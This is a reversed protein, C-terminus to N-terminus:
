DIAPRAKQSRRQMADALKARDDPPLTAAYGVARREVAARVVMDADRARDLAAVVAAQNIVPQRLLAAAETRAARGAIISPRMARRAQRLATRFPRRQAVPLESGAIRLSGANIMRDGSRLSIFGAM